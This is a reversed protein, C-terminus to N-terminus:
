SQDSLHAIVEAFIGEVDVPPPNAVWCEGCVLKGAADLNAYVPPFRRACAFCLFTWGEPCPYPSPSTPLCTAQDRLRARIEALTRDIDQASQKASSCQRCIPHNQTDQHAPDGCFPRACALCVFTPGSPTM